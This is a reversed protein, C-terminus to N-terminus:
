NQALDLLLHINVLPNGQLFDLRRSRRVVVYMFRQCCYSLHRFVNLNKYDKQNTNSEFNICSSLNIILILLLTKFTKM